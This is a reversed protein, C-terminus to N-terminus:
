RTGQFVRPLGVCGMHQDRPPPSHDVIHVRQKFCWHSAPVGWAKIAHPAPPEWIAICARFCWHSAWMGWANIGETTDITCFILSQVLVLSAYWM